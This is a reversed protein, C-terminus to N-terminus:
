HRRALRYVTYWFRNLLLDFTGPYEILTGNFGMKFRTIGSWDRGHASAAGKTDTGWFDYFRYGAKKAEQMITWHLGYPGMSARHEYSSAGFLYTATDGFYGVIAGAIFTEGSYAMHLRVFMRRSNVIKANLNENSIPFQINSIELVRLMTEYYKREHTKFGDRTATEQFVKWFEPFCKVNLMQCKVGKRLALRINYRTKEHMASLMEDESSSLDVVLTQEPQIPRTVHLTYRTVDLNIGPEIRLFIAQEQKAIERIREVLLEANKIRLEANLVPGRLAYLYSKGMPLKYKAIGCVGILEEHEKTKENTDKRTIGLRWVKRGLAKQFELWEWSQLFIGAQTPQSLLFDNWQKQNDIERITM